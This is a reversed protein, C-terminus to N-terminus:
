AREGTSVSQEWFRHHLIKERESGLRVPGASNGTERPGSDDAASNHLYGYGETQLVQCLQEAQYKSKGYRGLPTLATSEDIPLRAPIGYVSSTSIHVVKRVKARSCADLVNRTGTVNTDRYGKGARAMPVLAANHFAVEVEQCAEAVARADRVDARVYEVAEEIKEDEIGATDLIRVRLGAALLRRTLHIGFFGSGGTVLIM